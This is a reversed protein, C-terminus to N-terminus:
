LYFVQNIRRRTDYGEPPAPFRADASQALAPARSFILVCYAVFPIVREIM